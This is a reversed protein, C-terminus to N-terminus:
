LCEDFFCFHIFDTVGEAEANALLELAHVDFVEVHLVERLADAVDQRVAFRCDRVAFSLRQEILVEVLLGAALSFACYCLALSEEFGIALLFADDGGLAAELVGDEVFSRTAAGLSRVLDAAVVLSREDVAGDEVAAIATALGGVEGEVTDDGTPGLTYLQHFLAGLVAEEDGRKKM